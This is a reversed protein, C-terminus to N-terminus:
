DQRLAKAITAAGLRKLCAAATEGAQRQPGALQALKEIASEIGGGAITADPADGAKGDLSFGYGEASGTLALAPSPHACGKACGSLHVTLSGDLLEPARDIIHGALRRTEYFGSMCFGAGVCAAINAVPDHPDASLGHRGAIAKLQEAEDPALGILLFQRDPALRIEVRDDLNGLFAILDSSQMQGFQPRLGLAAHQGSLMLIGPQPKAAVPLIAPAVPQQFSAQLAQRDFDRARSHKGVSILLDLVCGVMAVAEEADGCFLPRATQATGAISVMWRGSGVAVIRIDASLEDLCFHGRGDVLIALKPALLPSALKERLHGRLMQEVASPDSLEAPDLGHLPSLEIAPNAPVIISAADIDAALSEVSEARLGRVQLNGRATIELIGNGNAAASVALTRLQAVTLAGGAPRLRVLLGDGTPMPAALTPCAGRRLGPACHDGKESYRDTAAAMASGKM